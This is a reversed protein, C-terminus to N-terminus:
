SRVEAGWGDFQAGRMEGLRELLRVLNDLAALHVPAVLYTGAVVWEKRRRLWGQEERRAEASLGHEVLDAVLAGAAGEDPALFLFDVSLSQGANVGAEQLARWTRRNRSLQDELSM